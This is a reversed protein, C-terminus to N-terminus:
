WVLCKYGHHMLNDTASLTSLHYTGTRSPARLRSKCSKKQGEQARLVPCSSACGDWPLFGCRECMMNEIRAMEEMDIESESPASDRELHQFRCASGLRCNPYYRCLKAALGNGRSSNAHVPVCHGEVACIRAGMANLRDELKAGPGRNHEVERM